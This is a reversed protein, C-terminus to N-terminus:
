YASELRVDEVPVYIPGEVNERGYILKLLDVFKEGEARHAAEEEPTPFATAADEGAKIFFDVYRDHWAEIDGADIPDLLEFHNLLRDDDADVIPYRWPHVVFRIRSPHRVPDPERYEEAEDDDDDGGFAGGGKPSWYLSRYLYAFYGLTAIAVPVATWLHDPPALRGDRWLYLVAVTVAAYGLAANTTSRRGKADDEDEPPFASRAWVLWGAQAAMNAIFLPVAWWSLLAAAFGSAGTLAGGVGLLLRRVLVKRPEKQLKIMAIARDLLESMAMSRIAILGGFAYFAGALRAAIELIEM